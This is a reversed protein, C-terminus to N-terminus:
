FAKKWATFVKPIQTMCHQELSDTSLSENVPLSNYQLRVSDLLM